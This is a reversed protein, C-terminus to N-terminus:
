LLFTVLNHVQEGFLSREPVSKVIRGRHETPIKDHSGIKHMPSSRLEHEYTDASRWRLENRTM